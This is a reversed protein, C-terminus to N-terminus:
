EGAAPKQRRASWETSSSCEVGSPLTGATEITGSGKRHKLKGSVVSTIRAPKSVFEANFRGRESIPAKADEGEFQLMAGDECDITVNFSFQKVALQTATFRIETDQSTTGDYTGSKFGALAVPAITLSLLLAAFAGATLGAGRRISM